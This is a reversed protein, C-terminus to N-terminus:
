NIERSGVCGMGKRSEAGLRRFVNVIASCICKLIDALATGELAIVIKIRSKVNDPVCVVGVNTEVSERYRCLIKFFLFVVLLVVLFCGIAVVERPALPNEDREIKLFVFLLFDLYTSNMLM